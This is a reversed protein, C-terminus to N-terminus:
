GKIDTVKFVEIDGLREEVLLGAEELIRKLTQVDPQSEPLEISVLPDDGKARQELVLPIDAIYNLRMVAESLKMDQRANGEGKQGDLIGIERKTQEDRATIVWYPRREMTETVTLQTYREIDERILKRVAESQKQPVILEYCFR